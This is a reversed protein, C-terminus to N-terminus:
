SNNILRAEAEASLVGCVIVMLYTIGVAGALGIESAKILTSAALGFMMMAFAAVAIVVLVKYARTLVTMTNKKM